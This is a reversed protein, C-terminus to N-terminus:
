DWKLTFDQTAVLSLNPNYFPDGAALEEGWHDEFYKVESEFRKRKEPTTDQGRSISEHHILQVNPDLVIRLGAKRLRMCFDIDNFAVKIEENLGGVARYAEAKVLMCAATVASLDQQVKARAFYGVFDGPKQLFMHGAIGGLGVIVGGHQITGDPYFLKAGVAGVGKQACCGVMRTLWDPRIVEIDNNLLLFYDGKAEGAGFNNIASYNFGKGPWTLVRVREEKELEKYYRFTEEETSNNEIVLIEYNKYLTKDLVSEICRRLVDAQDKNPIIISVLPEEKVHYDVRYFGLHETHEASADIGLRDLQAQVSRKGADFAYMKSQPNAATSNRHMRWHYLIKPIHVVERARETIRLILDHDQSGDFEARFGGVRDMMERSTVFFHCIYNNSRLLEPNYDSKFHPEFHHKLDMSVKDEDSYFAEAEPHANMAKVTEYLADPALLDDHDLLGIWEGTALALAANTNGSIGKNADLKRYRIRPEKAYEKEIISQVSTDDVGGDALCLEWNEYTQAQVSGIMQRLFDAPTKYVPVIISIKPMRDMKEQRQLSLVRASPRHEEFWREYDEKPQTRLNKVKHWVKKALWVFSRRVDREKESWLLLKKEPGNEERSFATVSYTDGSKFPAIVADVSFGLIDERDVDPFARNVDRRRLRSIEAKVPKGNHLVEIRGAEQFDLFCWGYLNVHLSDGDRRIEHTDINFRSSKM